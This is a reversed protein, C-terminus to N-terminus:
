GESMDSENMPMTIADESTKGVSNLKKMLFKVLKPKSEVPVIPLGDIVVFTDLGQDKRVDYQARLDTRSTLRRFIQPYGSSVLLSSVASISKTKM